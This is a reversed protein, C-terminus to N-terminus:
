VLGKVTLQLTATENEYSLDGSGLGFVNLGAFGPLPSAIWACPVSLVEQISALAYDASARPMAISATMDTANRRRKIRTTGDFETKIYSYDVPKAQAGALTGGWSADGILARLDGIAILGAKASGGSNIFISLEADAHPLIDKLVLKSKPKIPSFLWEYWDPSEEILPESHTFIVSGGPEDRVTITISEGELGYMALANFFGPRMVYSLSGTAASQTSIETDFAAWRNTPKADLWNTADEEPPKTGAGAIIREYVRHTNARVVQAGLAYTTGSVWAVEGASADPEAISSSHLMPTTLENPILVRM